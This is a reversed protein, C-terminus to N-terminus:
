EKLNTMLSYVLILQCFCFVISSCVRVMPTVVEFLFGKLGSRLCQNERRLQRRLHLLAHHSLPRRHCLPPSISSLTQKYIAEEVACTRFCGFWGFFCIVNPMSSKCGTFRGITPSWSWFGPNLIMKMIEPLCWQASSLYYVRSTNQNRHYTNRNDIFQHLIFQLWVEYNWM